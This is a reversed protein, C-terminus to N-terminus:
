AANREATSGPTMFWEGVTVREGFRNIISHKRSHITHGAKRLECIRAPAEFVGLAEWANFRTLTKGSRLYDLIRQKQSM